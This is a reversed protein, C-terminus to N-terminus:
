LKESSEKPEYLIESEIIFCSLANHSRSYLCFFSVSVYNCCRDCDFYTHCTSRWNYLITRSIKICRSISYFHTIWVINIVIEFQCSKEFSFVNYFKPNSAWVKFILAKCVLKFLHM